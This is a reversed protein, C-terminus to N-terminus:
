LELHVTYNETKAEADPAVRLKWEIRLNKGEPDPILFETNASFDQVLIPESGNQWYTVRYELMDPHAAVVRCSIVEGSESEPPWTIGYVAPPLLDLHEEISTDWVDAPLTGNVYDAFITSFRLAGYMNMHNYDRFDGAVRPFFAEKLLSFDVYEMGTGAILDQVLAIYENYNGMGLLRYDTTPPAFLTLEINQERCFAIIQALIEDWEPSINARDFAKYVWHSAFGESATFVQRFGKGVYKSKGDRALVNKHAKYEPSTKRRCLDMVSDPDFLESMVGHPLFFSEIYRDPGSAHLLFQIKNWSPRMADSVMWTQMMAEDTRQRVPGTAAAVGDSLELYIHELDYRRAAEKILAFSADLLQGETALSFTKRGTKEEVTAPDISFATRSAGVLLIDIDDQQYFEDLTLECFPWPDIAIFYGIGNLLVLALGLVAIVSICRKFVDVQM